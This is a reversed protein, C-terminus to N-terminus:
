DNILVFNDRLNPYYWKFYDVIYMMLYAIILWNSCHLRSFKLIGWVDYVHTAKGCIIKISAYIEDTGMLRIANRM